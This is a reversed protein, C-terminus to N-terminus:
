LFVIERLLAAMRGLANGLRRELDANRPDRALAARSEAIARDIVELNRRLARVTAPDLEGLRDDALVRLAAIELAAGLLADPVAGDAIPDAATAGSEGVAHRVADGLADPAAALRLALPSQAVLLIEAGDAFDARDAVDDNSAPSASSASSAPSAPSAAGAAGAALREAAPAASRALRWTVGVTVAVLLTAAAALPRWRPGTPRPARAGPAAARRRSRNDDSGALAPADLRAAIAPWLDRAPAIPPLAHAASTVARLEGVLTRCRDCQALHEAVEARSAADLLEELWDALRADVADCSIAAALRPGRPAHRLDSM